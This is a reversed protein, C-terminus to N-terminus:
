AVARGRATRPACGYAADKTGGHSHLLGRGHGARVPDIARSPAVQIGESRNEAEELKKEYIKIQEEIFQKAEASIRSMAARSQVRSLHTPLRNSLKRPVRPTPTASPSPLSTGGARAKSRWDGWWVRSSRM